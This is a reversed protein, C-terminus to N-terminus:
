TLLQREVERLRTALQALLHHSLSPVEDLLATFDLEGIVLLEVATIATVTASRPGRDLLALEGFSDGASMERRKKGGVTVRVRGDRIVFFETGREGERCIVAGAEVTRTHAVSAISALEHRGLGGFLTVGKLVKLVRVAGAADAM